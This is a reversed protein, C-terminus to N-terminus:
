VPVINLIKPNFCIFHQIGDARPLIFGDFGQKKLVELWKKPVDRFFDWWVQELMERFENPGWKEFIATAAKTLAIKQDEDWDQLVDEKNPSADILSKISAVTFRKDEPVLRPQELLKVTHVFQGYHLADGPSSTLYIGPGEQDTARPKGVSDLNFESIERTSGHYWTDPVNTTQKVIESLLM